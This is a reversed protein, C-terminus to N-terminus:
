RAPDKALLAYAVYVGGSAAAAPLGVLSSLTASDTQVLPAEAVAAGRDRVTFM